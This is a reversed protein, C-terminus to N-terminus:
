GRKALTRRLTMRHLVLLGVATATLLVPVVGLAAKLSTADALGGVTVPALLIAGASVAVVRGSVQGARDPALGVSAAVAMPFLNGIGAGLLVLGAATLGPVESSWVVAFGVATLGTAWGLLWVPTRRLALRSGLVRGALFGGFYGAMLTVAADASVGTAEQAFTAGWGTVTWEVATTCAVITAAVWLSGPLRGTDAPQASGSAGLALGRNLSWVVVPVALSVLLALRWDAGLRTALSLTGVLLLYGCSAAVNLETLAVARLDGHHDALAAQLTALVLGGGLGMALVAGMTTAATRGSALGVTSVGLLAAGSWLVTRRGLARELRASLLGAVTSGGAFATVYLGGTAYSLDLERRLRPVVLGPAAQLYAFWGLVVYATWTLRDRVLREM